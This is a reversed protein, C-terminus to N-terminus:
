IHPVDDGVFTEFTEMNNYERPMRIYMTYAASEWRGLTKILSDQLRCSAAMTAAGDFATPQM